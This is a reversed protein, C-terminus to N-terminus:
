VNNVEGPSIVIHPAVRCNLQELLSDRYHDAAQCLYYAMVAYTDEGSMGAYSAMNLVNRILPNDRSEHELAVRCETPTPNESLKEIM